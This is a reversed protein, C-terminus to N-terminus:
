ANNSRKIIKYIMSFFSYCDFSKISIALCCLRKIGNWLSENLALYNSFCVFICKGTIRRDYYKNDANARAFDILSLLIEKSGITLISPKSIIAIAKRADDKGFYDFSDFLFAQTKFACQKQENNKNSSIQNGSIRYYLLPATINAIEYDKILSAWLAYDQSYRMTEDYRVRKGSFERRFFATPHLIPSFFLISSQLDQWNEYVKWRRGMEGKENIIIASTGSAVCEKHNDMFDVQREFRTSLCIDDADMRAVYEGRAFSLAKNLSRTLGINDNNTIIHIRSDKRQYDGLILRNEDRAPNDNVIIFEYDSFTQYLVSEISAKMWEIPENYVSMIVSIRPM